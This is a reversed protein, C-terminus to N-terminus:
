FQALQLRLEWHSGLSLSCNFMVVANWSSWTWVALLICPLIYMEILCLFRHDFISPFTETFVVIPSM